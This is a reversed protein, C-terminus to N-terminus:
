KTLLSRNRQPTGISSSLMRRWLSPLKPQSSPKLKSRVDYRVFQQCSITMLPKWEPVSSAILPAGCPETRPGRSKRRNLILSAETNLSQRAQSKASTKFNKNEESFKWSSRVHRKLQFKVWPISAFEFFVLDTIKLPEIWISHTNAQKSFTIWCLTRTNNKWEFELHVSCKM